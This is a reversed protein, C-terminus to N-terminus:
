RVRDASDPRSSQRALGPRRSRQSSGSATCRGLRSSRCGPCSTEQTGTGPALGPSLSDIDFSLYLPADGVLDRVQTMLGDLSRGRIGEATVVRWGQERGWAFDGPAYGSRRLGIQV